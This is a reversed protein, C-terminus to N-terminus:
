WAHEVHYLFPMQSDRGRPSASEGLERDYVLRGLPLSHEFTRESRGRPIVVMVGSRGRRTHPGGVTLRSFSVFFIRGSTTPKM